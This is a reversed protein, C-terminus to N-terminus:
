NLPIFIPMVHKMVRVRLVTILLCVDHMVRNFWLSCLKQDMLTIGTLLPFLFRVCVCLCVLM